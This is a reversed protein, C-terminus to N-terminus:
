EIGLRELVGRRPELAAAAEPLLTEIAQAIIQMFSLVLLLVM